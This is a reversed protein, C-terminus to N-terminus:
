PESSALRRSIEKAAEIIGRVLEDEGVGTYFPIALFFPIGEYKRPIVSTSIIMDVQDSSLLSELQMSSGTMLQVPLGQQAFIDKLKNMVVNAGVTGTGCM